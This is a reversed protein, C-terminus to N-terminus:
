SVEDPDTEASGEAPQLSGTEGSEFDEEAVPEEVSPAATEAEAEPQNDPAPPAACSAATLVVVVVLACWSLKAM